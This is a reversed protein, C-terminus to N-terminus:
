KATWRWAVGARLTDDRPIAEGPEEGSGGDVLARWHLTYRYPDDSVRLRVREVPGVHISRVEDRQFVIHSETDLHSVIRPIKGRSQGNKRAIRRKESRINRKEVLSVARQIQSNYSKELRADYKRHALHGNTPREHFISMSADKDESFLIPNRGSTCRVGEIPFYLAIHILARRTHQLGHDYALNIQDILGALTDISLRQTVTKIRLKFPTVDRGDFYEKGCSERFSYRATFSKDENISFGLDTLAEIVDATLRSDTIIDDGYCAFPAYDGRRADPRRPVAFKLLEKVDSGALCTPDRWDLGYTKCVSIYLVVSSFIISQVPFCVASGMPAFKQVDMTIVDGINVTHTRTAYLHRLVKSPFLSSVLNWSVSDSASSLDITDLSSDISGKRSLRQNTGQDKLTVHHRLLGESIMQELRLRVAQQAWMYPIPEMCISRSTKYTKPVFHLRSVSSGTGSYSTADGNPTSDYPVDASDFINHERLYTYRIKNPIYFNQNKAKIGRVGKQSVAGGGHKPLMTDFSWPECVAHVIASLAKTWTPLTLRELHQEVQYWGRLATADLRADVYSIKKGFELFTLLYRLMKYDHTRYFELYEKFVPTSKFEILFTDISVGNEDRKLSDRLLSALESMSSIVGIPDNAFALCFKNLTRNPKYGLSSDALLSVWTVQLLSFTRWNEGVRKKLDRASSSGEGLYKTFNGSASPISVRGHYPKM